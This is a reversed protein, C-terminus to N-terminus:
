KILMTRNGDKTILYDKYLSEHELKFVKENFKKSDKAKKWTVLIVGDKSILTERDKMYAGVEDKLQDSLEKMIDISREIAKIQDVKRELKALAILPEKNLLGYLDNIEKRTTPDNKKPAKKDNLGPIEDMEVGKYINLHYYILPM